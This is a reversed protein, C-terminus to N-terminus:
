TQGFILLFVLSLYAHALVYIVAAVLDPALVAAAPVLADLAAFIPPPAASVPVLAGLAAVFFAQLVAASVAGLIKLHPPECPTWTASALNALPDVDHVSSDALLIDDLQLYKCNTRTHM